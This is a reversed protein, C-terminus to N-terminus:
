KNTCCFTPGASPLRPLLCGTMKPYTETEIIFESGTLKMFHVEPAHNKVSLRKNQLTESGSYLRTGAVKTSAIESSFLYEVNKDWKLTTQFAQVKNHDHRISRYVEYPHPDQSSVSEQTKEKMETPYFDDRESRVKEHSSLKSADSHDPVFRDKTIGAGM